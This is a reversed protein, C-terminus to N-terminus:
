PSIACYIGRHYRWVGRIEIMTLLSLLLLLRSIKLITSAERLGFVFRCAQESGVERPGLFKQFDVWGDHLAQVAAGPRKGQLDAHVIECM